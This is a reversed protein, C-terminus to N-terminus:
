NNSVYKVLYTGDYNPKNKRIDIGDNALWRIELREETTIGACSTVRVISAQRSPENKSLIFKACPGGPIMNKVSIEFDGDQDLLINTWIIGSLSTNFSPISSSSRSDCYNKNVVDTGNIPINHNTIIGGNMDIKSNYINGNEVKSNSRSFGVISM